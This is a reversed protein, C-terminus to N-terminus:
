PRSPYVQPASFKITSSAEAEFKRDTCSVKMSDLYLCLNKYSDGFYMKEPRTLLVLEKFDIEERFM